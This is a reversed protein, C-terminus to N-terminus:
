AEHDRATCFADLESKRYRRRGTAGRHCPLQGRTTASDLAGISMGVYEAAAKKDLWGDEHSLPLAASVAEQVLARLTEALEQGDIVMASKM